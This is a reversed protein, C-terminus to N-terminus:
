ILFWNLLFTMGDAENVRFCLWWLRCNECMILSGYLWRLCVGHIRSMNFWRVYISIFLVSISKSPDTLTILGSNNFDCNSKNRGNRQYFVNMAVSAHNMRTDPEFCPCGPRLFTTCDVLPCAYEINNQLATEDTSPKAICWTKQVCFHM